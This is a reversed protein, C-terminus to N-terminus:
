RHFGPFNKLHFLLSPLIPLMLQILNLLIFYSHAHNLLEQFDLYSTSVPAIIPSAWAAAWAQSHRHDTCPM